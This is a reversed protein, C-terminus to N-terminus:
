FCNIFLRLFNIAYQAARQKIIIRSFNPNINVKYSETKNKDSIAIYVLGVPKEATGGTPGAIGTIGVGIDTGAVKRIGDAMEGAVQESVAGYKQILDSNVGLQKIKSENSYTVSNLKIYASSGPIDTLMSSVLGGTCSEATSVTLNKELLIKGVIKELTDNDYGWFYDGIRNLIEKEVDLILASAEEKTKAKAALRVNTYGDSVLTAVTPNGLAMLDKIKEGLAGEPISFFKLFRKEIVHESYKGLYKEMSDEWIAYLEEPVGPLVIIIKDKIEWIIGPATGLPNDIVKAGDPFAAQKKAKEPIKLNKSSFFKEIKKFSEEHVVLKKDFFDAVSQMTIDDDTPGLGGTIILIDTRELAIKMSQKIRLDNDGVVSHQFCDIGLGSLKKSIYAANTNVTDGLLLETGVCLIEARM